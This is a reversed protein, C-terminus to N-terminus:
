TQFKTWAEDDDSHSESSAQFLEIIDDLEVDGEDSGTLYPGYTEADLGLAPLATELYRDLHHPMKDADLSKGRHSQRVITPPTPPEGRSQETEDSRLRDGCAHTLNHKERNH